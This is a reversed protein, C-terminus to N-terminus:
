KETPFHLEAANLSCHTSLHSRIAIKFTLIRFRKGDIVQGGQESAERGRQLSLSQAWRPDAESGLEEGGSGEERRECIANHKM